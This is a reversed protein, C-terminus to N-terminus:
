GIFGRQFVGLNTEEGCEGGSGSGGETDLYELVGVDLNWSYGVPNIGADVCKAGGNVDDNLSFDRPSGTADEFPDSTISIPDVEEFEVGDIRGSTAGDSACNIVCGGSNNITFSYGGDDYSICNAIHQYTVEFGGSGNGYSVCNTVVGGATTGVVLGTATNNVAVCGTASLIDEFGEGGNTDAVCYACVGEFFGSDGNNDAVCGIMGGCEYFGYGDCSSARCAVLTKISTFGATGDCDIVLCNRASSGYVYDAAIGIVNQSNGDIILNAIMQEKSYSPDLRIVYTPAYSGCDFRPRNTDTNSEERTTDYGIIAFIDGDIETSSIDLCGGSENASASTLTYDSVSYKIFAKMGSASQAAVSLVAGLGGLSKLAGGLKFVGDEQSGSSAPDRDLTLYYDQGHPGNGVDTGFGTIQYKGSTFNTGGTIGIINNALDDISNGLGVWSDIADSWVRNTDVSDRDLDSGSIEASAQLSYDLGGVIEDDVFGGGNDDDGNQRLEWVTDASLSM